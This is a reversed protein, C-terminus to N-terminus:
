EIVFNWEKWLYVIVLLNIVVLVKYAYPINNKGLCWKLLTISIIVSFVSALIEVFIFDGIQEYTEKYLIYWYINNVSLILGAVLNFLNVIKILKM